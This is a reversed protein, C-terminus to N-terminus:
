ELNKVSSVLYKTHFGEGKKTVVFSSGVDVGASELATVANESSVSWTKRASGDATEVKVTMQLVIYKDGDNNEKEAPIIELVELVKAPINTEPKFVPSLEQKRERFAKALESFKSSM